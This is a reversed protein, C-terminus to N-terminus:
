EMLLADMDSQLSTYERQLEALYAKRESESQGSPVSQTNKQLVDARSKLAALQQNQSANSSNLRAQLSSVNDRMARLQAEQQAVSKTKKGVEKELAASHASARRQQTEASNLATERQSLREEYAKPNYSFFGGKSPDTTGVGLCGGLLMTSLLVPIYLKKHSM